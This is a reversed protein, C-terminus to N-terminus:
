HDEYCRAVSSHQPPNERRQLVLFGCSFTAQRTRTRGVRVLVQAVGGVNNALSTMKEVTDLMDRKEEDLISSEEEIARRTAGLAAALREDPDPLEGIELLVRTSLSRPAARFWPYRDIQKDLWGVSIYGEEILQEFLNM